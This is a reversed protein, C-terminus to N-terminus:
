AESELYEAIQEDAILNILISSRRRDAQCRPCPRSGRYGPRCSADHRPGKKFYERRRTGKNRPPPNHRRRAAATIAADFSM